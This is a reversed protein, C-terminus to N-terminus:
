GWAAALAGRGTRADRGAGFTARGTAERSQEKQEELDKVYLYEQIGHRLLFSRDVHFGRLRGNLESPAYRPGPRELPTRRDYALTQEDVIKFRIPQQPIQKQNSMLAFLRAGPRCLRRLPQALHALEQRQLYNFLDWALVVDFRTDEPLALFEQFFEPGAIEGEERQTRTALASYLDEIYLKCGFQSLFEVNSGVAPGLDLIHPKAGRRIEEILAALALSRHVQPGPETPVPGQERRNRAAFWNM